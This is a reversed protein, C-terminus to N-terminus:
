AEAPGPAPGPAGIGQRKEFEWCTEDSIFYYTRGQHQLSMRAFSKPFRVNAIPDTVMHERQYPETLPIQLYARAFEVLRDDIWRAVAAEDFAELPLELREHPTFKIYIPLIDLDYYLYLTRVDSDHSLALRFKVEALECRVAVTVAGHYRRAGHFVTPRAECPFKRALAALRAQVLKRIRRAIALFRRYREHVAEYAREAEEQFKRVQDRAAAIEAALRRELEDTASEM